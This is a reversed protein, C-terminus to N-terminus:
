EIFEKLFSADLPDDSETITKYSIVFSSYGEQNWVTLFAQVDAAAVAAELQGVVEAPLKVPSTKHLVKVRDLITALTMSKFGIHIQTRGDEHNIEKIATIKVQRVPEGM